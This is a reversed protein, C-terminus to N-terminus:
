LRGVAHIRGGAGNANIRDGAADATIRDRAADESSILWLRVSFPDSRTIAAGDLLAHKLFWHSGSFRRCYFEMVLWWHMVHLCEGDFFSAADAWPYRM